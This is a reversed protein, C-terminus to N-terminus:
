TFEKNEIARMITQMDQWVARKKEPFLLLDGPDYTPMVPMGFYKHVRGRLLNLPTAQGTLARAPIEGLACIFKPSISLLQRKLILSCATIEDSQPSRGDPVRCKVLNCLYVDERALGMAQIINTLLEGAKGAFPKGTEDEAEGPGAGVFVIDASEAGEGFVVQKRSGSLTCLQCQDLGASVQQLNEPPCGWERKLIDLTKKSCDFGPCGEQSLLRLHNALSGALVGIDLRGSESSSNASM